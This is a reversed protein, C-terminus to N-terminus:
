PLRPGYRGQLLQHESETASINCVPEVSVCLRRKHGAGCAHLVSRQLWLPTHHCSSLGGMTCSCCGLAQAFGAIGQMLSEDSIRSCGCPGLRGQGLYGQLPRLLNNWSEAPQGQIYQVPDQKYCHRFVLNTQLGVKRADWHLCDGCGTGKSGLCPAVWRGPGQMYPPMQPGPGYMGPGMPPGMAGMPGGMMHPMMRQAYQQELQARRDEQRQALAVYMPKGHLMHQLPLPLTLTGTSQHLLRQLPATLSPYSLAALAAPQRCRLCCAKQAAHVASTSCCVPLRSLQGHLMCPQPYWDPKDHLIHQLPLM